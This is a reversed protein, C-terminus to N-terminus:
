PNLNEQRLVALASEKGEPIAPAQSAAELSNLAVEISPANVLVRNAAALTLPQSLAPTAVASNAHPVAPAVRGARSHLIIAIALLAAVSLAWVTIGLHRPKRPAEAPVELPLPAPALPRFEKLYLEFRRDTPDDDLNPM